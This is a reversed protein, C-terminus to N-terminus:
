LTKFAREFCGAKMGHYYDQSHPRHCFCLYDGKQYHEGNVQFPEDMKQFTCTISEYRAKDTPPAPYDDGIAKVLIEAKEIIAEAMEVREPKKEKKSM